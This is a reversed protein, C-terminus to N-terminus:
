RDFIMDCGNRKEGITAVIQYVTRNVVKIKFAYEVKPNYQLEDSPDIIEFQGPWPSIEFKVEEDSKYKESIALNYVIKDIAEGTSLDVLYALYVKDLSYTAGEPMDEGTTTDKIKVGWKHVAVKNQNTYKDIDPYLRNQAKVTVEEANKSSAAMSFTIVATSDSGNIAKSEEGTYVKVQGDKVYAAGEPVSWLYNCMGTRKLVMSQGDYAVSSSFQFTASKGLIDLFDECGALPLLLLAAAAINLLKKM